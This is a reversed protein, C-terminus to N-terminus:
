CVLLSERDDKQVGEKSENALIYVVQLVLIWDYYLRQRMIKNLRVRGTEVIESSVCVYVWGVQDTPNFTLHTM